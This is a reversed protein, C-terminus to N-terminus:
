YDKVENSKMIERLFSTAYCGKQLEFKLDLKQKNENINDSNLTWQLNSISALLARRSGTSSIYPIEPVVFDRYDIKEDGIIKHEIEGMEGQSFIPNNGLLIGSVFAKQKKIQINVKEMNSSKVLIYNHDMKNQRIPIILDGVIAENLPIKNLIRKSLIKNFLYSQYANIFMTQLNKPLEKLASVYDNPDQILKNIIAKEFNLYPPYSKLAKTFDLTKELYKRLEFTEKNEGEIPNAIYTMVAKKFDGKVIYKGMLHTIPRIVGFRQIGYFNPFGGIELSLKFIKNIESSETKNDINRIIIEFNNGLLKGITVSKDSYYLNRITIDKINVNALEEIKLNKFSILQTSFSRKDKTGAFKIRNRSIKLRKSLEKILRHTEWNKSSVEAIVYTGIEVKKPYSFIENVIFDETLSRLKGGIGPYPTFYTEIGIDKEFNSVKM